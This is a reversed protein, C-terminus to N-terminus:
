KCVKQTIALFAQNLQDESPSLYFDGGTESAVSRLFSENIRNGFGISYFVTGNEKNGALVETKAAAVAGDNFGLGILSFDSNGETLNANGDSLLIVLNKIGTRKNTKIDENATKVGCEICTGGGGSIRNISSQITNKDSTMTSLLESRFNFQTLGVRSSTNGLVVDVYAQSAQQVKELASGRMSGSTDVLIQTDSVTSGCNGPPGQLLPPQPTVTIGTFTYLQLSKEASKTIAPQILVQQGTKTPYMQPFVGGSFIFASTSLLLIIAFIYLSGHGIAGRSIRRKLKKRM